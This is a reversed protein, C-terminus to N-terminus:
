KSVNRSAHSGFSDEWRSALQINRQLPDNKLGEYFTAAMNRSWLGSFSNSCEEISSSCRCKNLSRLHVIEVSGGATAAQLCHRHFEVGGGRLGWSRSNGWKSFSGLRSM